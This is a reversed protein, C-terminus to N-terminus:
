KRPVKVWFFNGVPKPKPDIVVEPRSVGPEEELHELQEDSLQESSLSYKEIRQRRL